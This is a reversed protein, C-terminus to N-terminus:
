KDALEYIAKFAVIIAAPAVFVAIYGVIANLYTGIESILLLSEQASTSLMLVLAAVLFETTEKATINLFGVIIGLIMLILITTNAELFNNILGAFVCLLIGALFAYHGIKKDM